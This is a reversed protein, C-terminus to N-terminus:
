KKKFKLFFKNNNEKEITLKSSFFLINKKINKLYLAKKIVIINQSKNFLYNLIFKSCYNISKFYNYINKFCLFNSM